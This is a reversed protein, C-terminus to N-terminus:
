KALFPAPNISIGDRRVELVFNQGQLLTGIKDGSNIADGTKVYTEDLNGYVCSLGDYGMVEVLCEEGNGHYVGIVEGEVSATVLRETESWSMYPEEESWAHVVTGGLVPLAYDSINQEGFVLVAEPFLASVFSLKGLQDDLLSDGTAAALVADTTRNLPPVAGTRLTVAFLVFASAVALNKLFSENPNKQADPEEWEIAPAPKDPSLNRTRMRLPAVSTKQNCM